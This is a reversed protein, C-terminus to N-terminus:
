EKGTDDEEEDKALEPADVPAAAPEKVEEFGMRVSSGIIPGTGARTRSRGKRRVILERMTRRVATATQEYPAILLSRDFGETVVHLQWWSGVLQRNVDIQWSGPYEDLIERIAAEVDPDLADGTFSVM